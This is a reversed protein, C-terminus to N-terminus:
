GFFERENGEPSLALMCFPEGRVVVEQMIIGFSYVDAAQTGKKRLSPQRLLEPATWLLDLRFAFCRQKWRDSNVNIPCTYLFIGERCSDDYRQRKEDSSRYKTSRLPCATRLRNGQSGLSCRYRLEAVYSLRTCTGAYRSSIEYGKFLFKM